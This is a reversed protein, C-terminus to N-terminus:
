FKSSGWESSRKELERGVRKAGERWELDYSGEPRKEPQGNVLVMDPKVRGNASLLVPCQFIWVYLQASYRGFAFHVAM